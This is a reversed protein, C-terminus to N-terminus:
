KLNHTNVETIKKIFDNLAVICEPTLHMWETIKGDSDKIKIAPVPATSVSLKNVIKSYFATM